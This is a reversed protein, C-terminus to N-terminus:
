LNSPSKDKLYSEHIIGLCNVQRGAEKLLSEYRTMNMLFFHEDNENSVCRRDIFKKKHAHLRSGIISINRNQMGKHEGAEPYGTGGITDVQKFM